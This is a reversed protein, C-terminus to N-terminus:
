KVIKLGAVPVSTLAEETLKKEDIEIELKDHEHRMVILLGVGGKISAPLKLELKEQAVMAKINADGAGDLVLLMHKKATGNSDYGDFAYPPVPDVMFTGTTLNIEKIFGQTKYNM